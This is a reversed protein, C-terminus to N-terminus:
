KSKEDINMCMKAHYNSKIWWFSVIGSDDREAKHSYNNYHHQTDNDNTYHAANHTKSQVSIVIIM